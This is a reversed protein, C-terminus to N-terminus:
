AAAEDVFGNARRHARWDTSDGGKGANCERCLPQLNHAGDCGGLSIPVIHDKCPRPDPYCGCMVCRGDFEEVIEQWEEPAHTCIARAESLRQARIRSHLWKRHRQEWGDTRRAYSEDLRAKLALVEPSEVIM